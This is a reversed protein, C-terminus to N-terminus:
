PATTSWLGAARRGAGAAPPPGAGKSRPQAGPQREAWRSSQGTRSTGTRPRAPSASSSFAITQSIHVSGSEGGVAGIARGPKDGDAPPGAAGSAASSAVSHRGAPRTPRSSPRRAGEVPRRTALGFRASTQAPARSLTPGPSAWLPNRPRWQSALRQGNSLGHGRGCGRVMSNKEGVNQWNEAVGGGM